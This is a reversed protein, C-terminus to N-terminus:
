IGRATCAEQDPAVSIAHGPLSSYCLTEYSGSFTGTFDTSVDGIVEFTRGNDNAPSVSLLFTGEIQNEPTLTVQVSGSRSYQYEGSAGFYVHASNDGARPLGLESTHAGFVGSFPFALTIYFNDGQESNGTIVLSVLEADDRVKLQAVGSTVSLAGEMSVSLVSTGPAGEASPMPNPEEGVPEQEDASGQEPDNGDGGGCATFALGCLLGAFVSLYRTMAM